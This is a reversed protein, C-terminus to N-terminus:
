NRRIKVRDLSENVLRDVQDKSEWDRAKDLGDDRNSNVDM